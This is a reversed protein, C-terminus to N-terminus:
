VINTQKWSLWMTTENNTKTTTAVISAKANFLISCLLFTTLHWNTTQKLNQKNKIKRRENNIKWREKWVSLLAKSAVCCAAFDFM